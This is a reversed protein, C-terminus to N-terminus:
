ESRYLRALDVWFLFLHRTCKMMGLARFRPRFYDSALIFYFTIPISHTSFMSTSPRNLRLVKEDVIKLHYVDVNNVINELLDSLHPKANMKIQFTSGKKKNQKIKEKIINETHSSEVASM